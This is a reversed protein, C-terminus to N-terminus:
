RQDWRFLFHMADATGWHGQKYQIAIADRVDRLYVTVFCGIIDWCVYFVLGSWVLRFLVTAPLLAYPRVLAADM